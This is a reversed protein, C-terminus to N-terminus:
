TFPQNKIKKRFNFNKVGARALCVIFHIRSRLGTCKKVKSSLNHVQTLFMATLGLDHTRSHLVNEEIWPCFTGIASSFIFYMNDKSQSFHAGDLFGYKQTSYVDPEVLPSHPSQANYEVIFNYIPFESRRKTNFNLPSM